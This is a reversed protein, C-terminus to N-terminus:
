SRQRRATMPDRRSWRDVTVRVRAVGRHGRGRRGGAVVLPVRCVLLVGGVAVGVTDAGVGLQRGDALVNTVVLAALLPPAALAVVRCSRRPCSAAASSSPDSPRSWRPPSSSVASRAALGRDHVLNMAAGGARVRAAVGAPGARPPRGHERGPDPHRATDAAGAGARDGRRGPRDAPGRARKARRAPDVLFFMPFLADLGFREPDGILDGTTRASSRAPWGRSTSRCPRASCRGATSPATGAASSLAWSSDVIAQGQAARKARGGPLSPALAIGM